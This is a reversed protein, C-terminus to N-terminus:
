ELNELAIAKTVEKSFEQKIFTTVDMGEPVVVEKSGNVINSYLDKKKVSFSFSVSYRQVQESFVDAM